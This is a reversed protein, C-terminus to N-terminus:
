LSRMLYNAEYLCIALCIVGALIFVDFVLLMIRNKM